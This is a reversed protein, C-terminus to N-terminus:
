IKSECLVEQDTENWTRGESHYREKGTMWIKGQDGEKANKQWNHRWGM